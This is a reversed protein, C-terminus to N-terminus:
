NEQLFTEMETVFWISLAGGREDPGFIAPRDLYDRTSQQVGTGTCVDVLGSHDDIRAAIGQWARTLTEAYSLAAFGNGRGWYFPTRRDHWFLGDAQQVDADLLFRTLITLYADDGTLQVVVPVPDKKHDVM